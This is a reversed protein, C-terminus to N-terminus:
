RIPRGLFLLSAQARQLKEFASNIFEVTKTWKPEYFAM